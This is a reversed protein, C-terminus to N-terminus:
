LMHQWVAFIILLLSFKVIKTGLVM